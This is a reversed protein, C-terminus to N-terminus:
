ADLAYLAAREAHIRTTDYLRVPTDPQQVLLGIETCGLIAGQAGRAALTDIIELFRKKSDPRIEGLCLEHFIVSNVLEMDRADPILVDIGRAILRSKYFDQQMTYKTGLLAVTHVGDEELADATVDAIHLIPISIHSQIQPAVKHM